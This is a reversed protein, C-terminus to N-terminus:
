INKAYDLDIEDIEWDTDELSKISCQEKFDEYLLPWDKPIANGEEDLEYHTTNVIFNRSVSVLAKILVLRPKKEKENWPANPNNESGEPYDAYKMDM